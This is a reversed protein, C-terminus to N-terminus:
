QNLFRYMNLCGLFLNFDGAYNKPYEPTTLCGSGDSKTRVSFARHIHIGKAKLALHRYAAAQIRWWKQYQQGTKIDPLSPKDDGKIVCILDPRGSFGLDLDVLREEALIVKDVTMDAWRRFSDFYPQHEARLPPVWLGLLYSTSAAHVATGREAHEPKFWDTDIFPKIVQTVSPKKM